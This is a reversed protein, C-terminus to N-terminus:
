DLIKQVDEESGLSGTILPRAGNNGYDLISGYHTTATESSSSGSSINSNQNEQNVNKKDNSSSNNNINSESNLNNSGNISNDIDSVANGDPSFPIIDMPEEEDHIIGYEDEHWSVNNSNIHPLKPNSDDLEKKGTEAFILIVITLILVIFAVIAKKM